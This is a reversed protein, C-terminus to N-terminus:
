HMNVQWNKLAYLKKETEELQSYSISHGLRNLIKILDVNRRTVKSGITTTYTKTPRNMGECVVHICDQAFSQVLRQIKESPTIGKVYNSLLVTLFDTLSEPM